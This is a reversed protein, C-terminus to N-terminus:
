VVLQKKFSRSMTMRGKIMQAYMHYAITENPLRPKMRIQAVSHKIITEFKRANIVAYPNLM